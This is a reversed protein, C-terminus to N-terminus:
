DQPEIALKGSYAAQNTQWRYMYVGASLVPLEISIYPDAWSQVEKELQLRGSLDWLSFRARGEFLGAELTIMNTAPNPFIRLVGAQPQEEVGTTFLLAEQVAALVNIRGNGFTPNPVTDGSFGGCTDRTFLPYATKKLIEELQAVQGRLRPNASIILAVAGAVHPGAMSTGSLSAYFGRPMSSRVTVGPAVVDPKLYTKSKGSYIVPGRSSFTAISDLSNSAGVVFSGAFIAPSDSISYCNPGENGASVAVFVGAARLNDVAANLLPINTPNCGEMTPCGWSNNIVDPALAPNPSGGSVPTPALFWQFCELYTFPSGYGRDMNRCGIWTAGPAAGIQNGLGDDGAMTGMTHTGHGHDDCPVASNFGCPNLTDPHLPSAKHIADHWNFDHTGVSDRQWGRYKKLLAPHRWDYGTDQGGIVVGQGRYGMAWVQPAKIRNLGWEVGLRLQLDREVQVPSVELRGDEVVQAVEPRTALTAILAADASPVYVANIIFLPVYAVQRAQLWAVVGLQTRQAVAQLQRFVYAGKAEKGPLHAAGAVDAQERLLVLAAASGGQAVSEWLRSDVKESPIDSWQASLGQALGLIVAIWLCRLSWGANLSEVFHAGVKKM